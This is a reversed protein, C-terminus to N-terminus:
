PGGPDGLGEPEPVHFAHIGTCFAEAALEVPHNGTRHGGQVIEQGPHLSAVVPSYEIEFAAVDACFDVRGDRFAAESPIRDFEPIDAFPEIVFPEAFLVYDADAPLSFFLEM